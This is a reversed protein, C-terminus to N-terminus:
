DKSNQLYQINKLNQHIFKSLNRLWVTNVSSCVCPEGCMQWVKLFIQGESSSVHKTRHQQQHTINASYLDYCIKKASHYNKSVTACLCPFNGLWIVIIIKVILQLFIGKHSSRNTKVSQKKIELTKKRSREVWRGRHEKLEVWECRIRM